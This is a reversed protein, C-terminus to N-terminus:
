VSGGADVETLRADDPFPGTILRVDTRILVGEGENRAVFTLLPDFGFGAELFFEGVFFDFGGEEAGADIGVEPAAEVQVVVPGPVFVTEFDDELVVSVGEDGVEAGIFGRRATGLTGARRWALCWSTTRTGRALSRRCPSRVDTTRATWM